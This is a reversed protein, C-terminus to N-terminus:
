KRGKSKEELRDLGPNMIPPQIVSPQDLKPQKSINGEPLDTRLPTFKKRRGAKKKEDDDYPQAPLPQNKPNYADPPMSHHMKMQQQHMDPPRSLFNSLVSPRESSLSPPMPNFSTHPPQQQMLNAIISQHMPPKHLHQPPMNSGVLPPMPPTGLNSPIMQPPMTPGAKPFPQFEEASKESSKSKRSRKKAEAPAPAAQWEKERAAKTFAAFEQSEKAELELLKKRAIAEGALKLQHQAFDEEEMM